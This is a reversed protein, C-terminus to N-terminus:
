AKWQELERVLNETASLLPSFIQNEAKNHKLWVAVGRVVLLAIARVRKGAVSEGGKILALLENLWENAQLIEEYQGIEKGVELAEDKLRRVETLAMDHGRRLEEVLRNITDTAVPIIKAIERSVRERTEKISAELSTKEQKLSGVVAKATELEEKIKTIAQEREGREQQRSQILAELRLGKDLTGLEHMLRNRLEAPKINHRQAVVQIKQSFETLEEFPLGTVQLKQLEQNLATLTTEAKEARPEMDKIRRSLDQERKELDKVRPNLLKYKEELNAVVNALEERQRTLEAVQKRYDERKKVMPELDTTKRELEHAKNDLAELSLGTRKQVEQISYVLRVFEQAEDENGVSKLILPWRDIDAPDLGCENIRTLLILGIACQGPTLKLRRLDQSLERLLEIHEGVDAAEPFKGARLEAIVNAVTGISVGCKTAIEKYSLGSLYLKVILLRKATTVKEM